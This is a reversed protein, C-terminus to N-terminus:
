CDSQAMELWMSYVNHVPKGLRRAFAVCHATGGKGSDDYLAIVEDSDRVMAENRQFLAAPSYAPSVHVQKEAVALLQEYRRRAHDPWRGDQGPFPVYAHFPIDLDHAARAIAQDWGLAMGTLVLKPSREGLVRHALAHLRGNVTDGYGGLRAPRHGTVSLITM